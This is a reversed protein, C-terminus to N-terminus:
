FPIEQEDGVELVNMPWVADINSYYHLNDHATFGKPSVLTRIGIPETLTWVAGVMSEDFGDPLYARVKDIYKYFGVNKPRKSDPWAGNPNDAHDDDFFTFTGKPRTKIYQLNNNNFVDGPVRGWRDPKPQEGNGTNAQPTSAPSTDKQPASKPPPSVVQSQPQVQEDEYAGSEELQRNIDDATNPDMVDATNSLSIIGAGEGPGPQRQTGDQQPAGDQLADEIIGLAEAAEAAASKIHDKVSRLVAKRVRLLSLSASILAQEQAESKEEPTMADSLEITYGFPIELKGFQETPLIMLVKDHRYYTEDTM